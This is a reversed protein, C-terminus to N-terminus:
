APSGQPTPMAAGLPLQAMWTAPEMPRALGLRRLLEWRWRRLHEARAETRLALGLGGIGFALKRLWKRPPRYGPDHLAAREASYDGLERAGDRYCDVALERWRHHM